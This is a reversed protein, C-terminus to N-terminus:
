MVELGFLPDQAKRSLFTRRGVISSSNMYEGVEARVDVFTTCGERIALLHEMSCVDFKTHVKWGCQLEDVVLLTHLEGVGYLCKCVDVIM